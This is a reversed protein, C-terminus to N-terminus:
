FWGHNPEGNRLFVNDWVNPAWHGEHFTGGHFRPVMGNSYADHDLQLIATRHLLCGADGLDGAPTLCVQGSVRPWSPFAPPWASVIPVSLICGNIKQLM